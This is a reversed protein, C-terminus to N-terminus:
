AANSTCKGDLSFRLTAKSRANRGQTNEINL